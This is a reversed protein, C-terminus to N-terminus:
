DFVQSGTDRIELIQDSHLIIYINKAWLDMSSNAGKGRVVLLDGNRLNYAAFGAELIKETDIGIIFHDNMYQKNNIALSHFASGHVGLSKRLQYFTEAISRCPYEPFLKSGIQVQWQLEKTFGYSGNTYNGGAMPGMFTNFSRHFLGNENTNSRDADFNIFVSKLRSVSRSVSLAFDSSTITQFQQSIHEMISQFLKELSSTSLTLIRFPQTWLSLMAYLGFMKFRGLNHRTPTLSCVLLELLQKPQLM